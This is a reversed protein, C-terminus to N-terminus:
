KRREFALTNEGKKEIIVLPLSVEKDTLGGSACMKQPSNDDWIFAKNGTAVAIFDGIGTLNKNAEGNGFLSKKEIEDRSYLLFDKGYKEEFKQRFTSKYDDKVYLSVARSEMSVPFQLMQAIEQDQSLKINDVDIIGNTSTILVVSDLLSNCLVEIKDNIIKILETNDPHYAGKEAMSVFPEDCYAFTFTKWKSQCVRKVRNIISDIKAFANKGQPLIHNVQVKGTKSLIEDLRENPLYYDALYFFGAPESSDKLTNDICNVIKYEQRFFVTEGLWGHELPMKCTEFSMLGPTKSSPFVSTIGSKLNCRLFDDPKLHHNLIDMGLGDLILVVVNSYNKSLVSDVVALTSHRPRIGYHKILSNSFNVICNNYDPTTIM